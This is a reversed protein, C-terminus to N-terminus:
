QLLLAAGRILIGTVGDSSSEVPRLVAGYLMGPLKFALYLDAIGVLIVFPALTNQGLSAMLGSGLGVDLVQLFQLFCTAGFAAAGLKGFRETQKLGLLFLWIPSLVLLLDLLGLRVIAEVLLLIEMVAETLYAIIEYSPLGIINFVIAPLSQSIGATALAGQVGLCLANNLEIFSSLIPLSFNAAVLALVLRPVFELVSHYSAGLAHRMMANYGGIVLFLVLAADAVGLAWQWLNIVVQASYSLEPSTTFMPIFSTLWDLLGHLFNGLGQGVAGWFGSWCAGFDIGGVGVCSGGSSNNQQQQQQQAAVVPDVKSLPQVLTPQNLYQQQLLDAPWHLATLVSSVEIDANVTWYWYDNCLQDTTDNRWKSNLVSPDWGFDQKIMFTISGSSTKACTGNSGSGGYMKGTSGTPTSSSPTPQAQVGGNLASLGPTSTSPVSSQTISAGPQQPSSSFSNTSSFSQWPAHSIVIVGVVSMILVYLLRFRLPMRRRAGKEGRDRNRWSRKEKEPSVPIDTSSEGM